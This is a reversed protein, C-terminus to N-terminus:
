KNTQKYIGYCTNYMKLDPSVRIMINNGRLEKKTLYEKVIRLKVRKPTMRYEIEDTVIRYRQSLYDYNKMWVDLNSSHHYTCCLMVRPTRKVQSLEKLFLLNTMIQVFYGKDLLWNTFEVFDPHLEPSGGNIQVERIRYPFENVFTKLEELTSEKAQPRKGTLLKMSCYECSINCRYTLFLSLRVGRHFRKMLGFRFINFNKM